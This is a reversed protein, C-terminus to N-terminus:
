PLRLLYCSSFSSDRTESDDSDTDLLFFGLRAQWEAVYEVLRGPPSQSLEDPGKVNGQLDILWIRPENPNKAVTSSSVNICSVRAEDITKREESIRYCRGNLDFWEDPCTKPPQAIIGSLFGSAIEVSSRDPSYENM